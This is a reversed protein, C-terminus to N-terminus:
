EKGIRRMSLVKRIFSWAVSTRIFCGIIVARSNILDTIILSQIEITIQRTNRSVKTFAFRFHIPISKLKKFNTLMLYYKCVDDANVTDMGRSHLHVDRPLSLSFTHVPMATERNSTKTKSGYFLLGDDGNTKSWYEDSSSDDECGLEKARDDNDEGLDQEPTWTAQKLNSRTGRQAQLIQNPQIPRENTSNEKLVSRNKVNRNEVFDLEELLSRWALTPSFFPTEVQRRPLTPRIHVLLGNDNVSERHSSTNKYEIDDAPISQLTEAPDADESIFTYYQIIPLHFYKYLM